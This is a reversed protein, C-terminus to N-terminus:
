KIKREAVDYFTGKGSGSFTGGYVNGDLAGKNVVTFAVGQVKQVAERGSKIDKGLSVPYVSTYLGRGGDSTYNDPGPEGLGLVEMGPEADNLSMAKLIHTSPKKDYRHVTAVVDFDDHRYTRPYFFAANIRAEGMGPGFNDSANIVIRQPMFYYKGGDEDEAEFVVRDYYNSHFTITFEGTEENKEVDIAQSNVDLPKVSKIPSKSHLGTSFKISSNLLYTKYVAPHDKTTESIDITSTFFTPDWFSPFYEYDENSIGFTVAEYKDERYITSRFNRDGNSLISNAGEADTCPDLQVGMDWMGDGFIYQKNVEPKINGHEDEIDNALVWNAPEQGWQYNQGNGSDDTLESVSVYNMDSGGQLETLKHYSVTGDANAWCFYASGDFPMGPIYANAVSTFFIMQCFLFFIFGLIKSNNKM